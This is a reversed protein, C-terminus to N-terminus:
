RKGQSHPVKVTVVKPQSVNGSADTAVITISYVRGSGGGSREARLQLTHDGTILWDPSTNGSGKGNMRENSTVGTIKWTTAGCTDAVRALITVNVMKHNPPWLVSPTASAAVISPPSTDVVTVTTSCSVTNAASDTVTVGVLNAGLPLSSSLTVNAPAPPQSAPVDNTQLGVGNVTWVVTLAEGDPDSVVATLQAATGCEVTRNPPCTVLPPLSNTLVPILQGRIEGGPYTPTHINIYTLRALLMSAVNPQIPVNGFVIGGKAPNAAPFHYPVLSVVVSANTGPGAPGHIHMATAAGTLDTFGAASGYGLALQLVSTATDFVIGGSITNGSGTSTVAVPVENSPILGVATDTGPPSLEFQILAAQSALATSFLFAFSKKM